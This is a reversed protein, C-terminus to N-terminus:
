EDNGTVIRLVISKRQLVSPFIFLLPYFSPFYFFICLTRKIKDRIVTSTTSAKDRLLDADASFKM